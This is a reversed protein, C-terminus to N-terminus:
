ILRAVHFSVERRIAAAAAGVVLLGVPSLGVALLAGVAIAVGHPYRQWICMACLAYGIAQFVFAALLLIASGGAALRGLQKGTVLAVEM